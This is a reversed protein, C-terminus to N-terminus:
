EQRGRKASAGDYVRAGEGPLLTDPLGLVAVLFPLSRLKHNVYFDVYMRLARFMNTRAAPALQLVPARSLPNNLLYQMAKREPVFLRVGGAPLLGACASCLLGGAEPQLVWADLQEESRGCQLCQDLRPRFGLVDMLKLEFAFLLNQLEVSEPVSDLQELAGLFLTFQGEAPQRAATTHDLLEAMFSAVTVTALSSQIAVHTSHVEVQRLSDLERGRFFQFRGHVFPITGAVLSSRGRRAGRATARIKGESPSLLTILRDGEGLNQSRLVVAETEYIRSSM